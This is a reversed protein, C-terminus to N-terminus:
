HVLHSVEKIDREIKCFLELYYVLTYLLSEAGPSIIGDGYESLIKAVAGAEISNYLRM